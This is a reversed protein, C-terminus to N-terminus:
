RKEPPFLCALLATKISTATRMSCLRSPGADGTTLQSPDALWPHSMPLHRRRWIPRSGPVTLKASTSMDFSVYRDLRESIMAVEQRTEIMISLLTDFCTRQIDHSLGFLGPRAYPWKEGDDRVGEWKATVKSSALTPRADLGGPPAPTTAAINGEASQKRPAAKTRPAPKKKAPKPAPPTPEPEDEEQEDSDVNIVSDDDSGDSEKTSSAKKRAARTSTKKAKAPQKAEAPARKRKRSAVTLTENETMENIEQASGNEVSIDFINPGQFSPTPPVATRFPLQHCSIWRLAPLM